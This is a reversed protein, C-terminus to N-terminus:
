TLVLWANMRLSERPLVRAILFSQDPSDQVSHVQGIEYARALHGAQASAYVTDGAVVGSDIPLHLLDIDTGNGMAVAAVKGSGVIVPLASKKDHLLRVVASEKSVESVRGIVHGDVDLALMGQHMTQSHSVVRLARSTYQDWAHLVSVVVPQYSEDKVALVKKLDKIENLLHNNRVAIHNLRVLEIQQDNILAQLHTNEHVLTDLRYFYHRSNHYFALARSRCSVSFDIVHGRLFWLLVLVFISLPVLLYGSEWQNKQAVNRM